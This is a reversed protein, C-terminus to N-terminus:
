KYYQKLDDLIYIEIVPVGMDKIIQGIIRDIALRWMPDKDRVKDDVPLSDPLPRCYFIKDYTRMYEQTFGWLQRVLRNYGDAESYALTDILTRDCICGSPFGVKMDLEHKIMTVYIWVQADRTASKNIPFPCKRAVEEVIPLHLKQSLWQAKQTKGTCHTGTMGIKM